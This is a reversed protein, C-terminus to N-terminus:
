ERHPHGSCFHEWFVVTCGLTSCDVPTCMSGTGSAASTAYLVIEANLTERQVMRTCRTHPASVSHCYAYRFPCAIFLSMFYPYPAHASYAWTRATTSSASVSVHTTGTYPGFFIWAPLALFGQGAPLLENFPLVGYKCEGESSNLFFFIWRGLLSRGYLVYSNPANMSKQRHLGFPM